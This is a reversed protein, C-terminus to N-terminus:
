IVSPHSSEVVCMIDRGHGQVLGISKVYDRIYMESNEDDYIPKL